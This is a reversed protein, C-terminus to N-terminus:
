ESSDSTEESSSEGGADADLDEITDPLPKGRTEPLLLAALGAVICPAAFVMLAVRTPLQAVFPASMSGIRACLSQLGMASARIDTPFLETAYIYIVAFVMSMATNATYYLVIKFISNAQDEGAGGAATANAGGDRSVLTANALTVNATPQTPSDDTTSCLMSLLLCLGALLFGFCVTGRRGIARCEIMLTALYYAPIAVAAGVVNAMYPNLPLSTANLSLGFYALSTCFWALCMILFRPLLRRDLLQLLNGGQSGGKKLLTSTNASPPKPPRRGGNMRAIQCLVNYAEQSRGKSALWKPSEKLVPFYLFFGLGLIFVAWSLHRWPRLWFALLSLLMQGLSWLVNPAWTMSTRLEPGLVEACWVYAVLGFGANGFGTIVRSAAYSTYGPAVASLCAGLEVVVLPVIYATRRGFRDSLAGFLPVGVMFGAFYLTSLLPALDKRGCLLDFELVYSDWAPIVGHADTFNSPRQGDLLTCNLQEAAAKAADSKGAFIAVYILMAGFSWPLGLLFLYLYQFRGSGGAYTDLAQEVYEPLDLEALDDGMDEVNM